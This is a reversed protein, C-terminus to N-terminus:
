KTSLEHTEVVEKVVEKPKALITELESIKKKATLYDQELMRLSNVATMVHILESRYLKVQGALEDFIQIAEAPTIQKQEM